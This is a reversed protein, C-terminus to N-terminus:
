LQHKTHRRKREAAWYELTEQIGLVSFLKARLLRFYKWPDTYEDLNNTFREPHTPEGLELDVYLGRYVDNLDVKWRGNMALKEVEVNIWRSLRDSLPYRESLFDLDSMCREEKLNSGLYVPYLKIGLGKKWIRVKLDWDDCNLDGWGGVADLIFRPVLYTYGAALGMRVLEPRSFYAHVFKSLLPTYVTDTDLALIFDAGSNHYATNRGTGRKCKKRIVRFNGFRNAMDQLIEWSRDTSYNDVVVYEFDFDELNRYVSEVHQEL